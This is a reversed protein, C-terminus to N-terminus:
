KSIKISQGKLIRKGRETKDNIWCNINKRTEFYNYIAGKTIKPDFSASIANKPACKSNDVYNFKLFKIDIAWNLFNLLIIVLILNKNYNFILILYVFIIAPQLYSIEAPIYLFLFLNAVILINLFNTVVVQKKLNFIKYFYIILIFFQIIGIALWTKYSFRALLGIFGQDTPRAASIWNLSFSNDFWVPLYFLGSIVFTCICLIIKKNRGIDINHKFFMISLIVFIIFNLRCGVSFAFVLIALEFFKKKYFFLGLSFFFFAWSYDIPELNDFFLVPSSLGLILFLYLRELEYKKELSFYILMLGIIHFFFTALNTAWSGLYYALFGIGIEPIPYSTFRSSVFAGDFLRREFVYIMPLTDEDSGYGGIFSLYIGFIILIIIISLYTNISIVSKFKM